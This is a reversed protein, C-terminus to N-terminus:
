KIWQPVGEFKNNKKSKERIETDINIIVKSPVSNIYTIDSYRIRYENKNYTEPSLEKAVSGMPYRFGMFVRPFGKFMTGGGNVIDASIQYKDEAFKKIFVGTVYFDPWDSSATSSSTDIKITICGSNDGYSGPYDNSVFKVKRSSTGDSPLVIGGGASDFNNTGVIIKNQTGIFYYKMTHCDQM